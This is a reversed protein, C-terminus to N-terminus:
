APQVGGLPGAEGAEVEAAAGAVLGAILALMVAPRRTM